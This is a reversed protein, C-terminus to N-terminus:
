YLWGARLGSMKVARLLHTLFKILFKVSGTKLGGLFVFIQARCWLTGSWCGGLEQESFKHQHHWSAQLLGAQPDAWFAANSRGGESRAFDIKVSLDQPPLFARPLTQSSFFLTVARASTLIIFATNKAFGNMKKVPWALILEAM